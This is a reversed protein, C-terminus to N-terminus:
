LFGPVNLVYRFIHFRISFLVHKSRVETTSFMTFLRPGIGLSMIDDSGLGIIYPWKTMGTCHQASLRSGGHRLVASCQAPVVLQSFVMWHRPEYSLTDRRM